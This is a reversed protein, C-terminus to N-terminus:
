ADGFQDATFLRFAEARHSIQHKKPPNMEGFTDSFKKPRFIPDYGFGFTGKPPWVLTGHVTGEYTRTEGSPLALALVCVFHAERDAKPGLKKEIRAMAADFDKDPGAWRASYIGPAGGLAPVVLGSDDALAAMGSGEAAAVAKLTANEAFTSGTEEPEPLNLEAASHVTLGFPNLLDRIESVKGENHSAIVLDDAILRQPM